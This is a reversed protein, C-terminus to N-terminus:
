GDRSYAHKEKDYPEIYYNDTQYQENFEDVLKQADDKNTVDLVSYGGDYRRVKAVWLDSDSTMTM